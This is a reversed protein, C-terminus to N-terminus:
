FILHEKHIKTLYRIGNIAECDLVEDNPNKIEVTRGRLLKSPHTDAVVATPFKVKLKARRPTFDSM